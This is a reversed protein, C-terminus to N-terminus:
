NVNILPRCVKLESNEATLNERTQGSEEITLPWGQGTTIRMFITEYLHGVVSKDATTCWAWLTHLNQNVLRDNKTAYLSYTLQFM